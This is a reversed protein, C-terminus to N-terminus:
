AVPRMSQEVGHSEKSVLFVKDLLYAKVLAVCYQPTCMMAAARRNRGPALETESAFPRVLRDVDIADFRPITKLLENALSHEARRALTALPEAADVKTQSNKGVGM